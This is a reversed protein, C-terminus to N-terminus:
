RRHIERCTNDCVTGLGEFIRAVRTEKGTEPNNMWNVYVCRGSIADVAVLPTSHRWTGELRIKHVMGGIKPEEEGSLFADLDVTLLVPQSQHNSWLMRLQRQGPIDVFATKFERKVSAFSMALDTLAYSLPFPVQGRSILLKRSPHTGASAIFDDCIELLHLTVQGLRDSLVSPDNVLVGVFREGFVKVWSVREEGSLNIDVYASPEVAPTQSGEALPSVDWGLTPLPYLRVHVLKTPEERSIKVVLITEDVIGEVSLDWKKEFMWPVRALRIYKVQLLVCDFVAFALDHKWDDDWPRDIRNVIYRGDAVSKADWVPRVSPPLLISQAPRLLRPTNLDGSLPMIFIEVTDERHVCVMIQGGPLLIIDLLDTCDELVTSTSSQFPPPSTTLKHSLALATIHHTRSAFHEVEEVSVDSLSPTHLFVPKPYYGENRTWKTWLQADKTLSYLKKSVRRCTVVMAPNLLRLIKLALEWPLPSFRDKAM